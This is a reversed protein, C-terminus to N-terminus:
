VLRAASESLDIQITMRGEHAHWQRLTYRRAGSKHMPDADLVARVEAESEGRLIILGAGTMEGTPMSLPGAAFLIGQKELDIQYRLHDPVLAAIGPGVEIPMTEVVWFRARMFRAALKEIEADM